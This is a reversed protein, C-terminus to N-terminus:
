SWYHYYSLLVSVETAHLNKSVLNLPAGICFSQDM